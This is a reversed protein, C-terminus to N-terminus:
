NQGLLQEKYNRTDTVLERYYDVIGAAHEERSRFGFVDHMVKEQEKFPLTVAHSYIDSVLHEFEVQLDFLENECLQIANGTILIDNM